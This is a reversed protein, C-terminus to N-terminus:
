NHLHFNPFFKLWFTMFNYNKFSTFNHIKVSRQLNENNIFFHGYCLNVKLAFIKLKCSYSFMKIIKSQVLKSFVKFIQLFFRHLDTM